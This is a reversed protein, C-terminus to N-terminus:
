ALISDIDLVTLVGDGDLDGKYLTEACGHCEIITKLYKKEALPPIFDYFKREKPIKGKYFEYLGKTGKLSNCPGCAMVQNHISQITDCSECDPKIRLSKPVLHERHLDLEHGCYICKKDSEVLQWDERTIDSWSIAGSKLKRFTEKVFGYHKRKAETGDEATFARRAIVKAYQYFILDRITEVDRDPM